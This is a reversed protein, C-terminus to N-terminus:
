MNGSSSRKVCSPVIYMNDIGPAKDPKLSVLKKMIIDPSMAINNLEEQPTGTFMSAPEPLNELVERTFVSSFFRNLLEASKKDDTIVEGNEDELPGVRDKVKMKSRAYKYFAKPDSKINKALKREFKKKAKRVEKTSKNLARKYALYDQYIKTEKQREWMRLRNKRARQVNRNWWLPRRSSKRMKKPVYIEVAENIRARFTDWMEVVTSQDSVSSWDTNAM